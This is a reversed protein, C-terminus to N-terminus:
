YYLQHSQTRDYTEMVGWFTVLIHARETYARLYYFTAFNWSINFDNAYSFQFSIWCSDITCSVFNKGVVGGWGLDQFINFLYNPELLPLVIWLQRIVLSFGPAFKTRGFDSARKSGHQFVESCGSFCRVVTKSIAWQWQTLKFFILFHM